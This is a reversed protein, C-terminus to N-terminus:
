INETKFLEILEPTLNIYDMDFEKSMVNLINENTYPLNDPSSWKRTTKLWNYWLVYANAKQIYREVDIISDLKFQKILAVSRKENDLEIQKAINIYYDIGDVEEGALWNDICIDADTSEGATWEICQDIWQTMHGYEHVVVELPTKGKLAVALLRLKSDFYGSCRINNGIKVYKVPRLACYIKHHKCQIRVFDIFQQVVLPQEAIEM